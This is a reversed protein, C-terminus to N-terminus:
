EEGGPNPTFGGALRLTYLPVTTEYLLGHKDELEVVASPARGFATPGEHIRVLRASRPHPKSTKLDPGRHAPEMYIVTLGVRDQLELLTPTIM